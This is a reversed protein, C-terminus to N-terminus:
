VVSDVPDVVELFPFRRFDRDRTCIRRINNERMLVATHLDHMHNGRVSPLESLTQALLSGHRDTAALMRFGQRSLLGKLCLRAEQSRLPRQLVHPHTGVRMFEYCVNWSLFGTEPAGTFDELYSSCISNYESFDDVAHVLVNADFLLVRIRSTRSSTLSTFKTEGMAEYLEDRDNINVLHGGSDWDPYWIGGRVKGRPPPDGLMQVLAEEVLASMTVGRKAAAERLLHKVKTDMNFTTGM